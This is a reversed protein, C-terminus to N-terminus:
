TTEQCHGNKKKTSRQTAPASSVRGAHFIARNTLVAQHFFHGYNWAPVGKVWLLRSAIKKQAAPIDNNPTDYRLISQHVIKTHKTSDRNVSLKQPPFIHKSSAAHLRQQVARTWDMLVGRTNQSGRGNTWVADPKEFFASLRTTDRRQFGCRTLFTVHGDHHHKIPLVNVGYLKVIYMKHHSRSVTAHHRARGRGTYDARADHASLHMSKRSLTPLAELNLNSSIMCTCCGEDM